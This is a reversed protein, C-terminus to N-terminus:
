DVKQSNYRIFINDNYPGTFTDFLTVLNTDGDVLRYTLLLNELRTTVTTVTTGLTVGTEVVTGVKCKQITQTYYGTTKLVYCGDSLMVLRPTLVDGGSVLGIRGSSTMTTTDISYVEMIFWSICLLRNNISDYIMDRCAGYYDSAWVSNISSIPTTATPTLTKNVFDIAVTVIVTHNTSASMGTCYLTNSTRDLAICGQSIGGVGISTSGSTFNSVSWVIDNIVKSVLIGDDYDAASLFIFLVGDKYVTTREPSRILIYGEVATSVKLELVPSSGGTLSYLHIASSPNHQYYVVVNSNETEYLDVWDTQTNASACFNSAVQIDSSIVPKGNVINFTALHVINAGKAIHSSYAVVYVDKSAVYLLDHLLWAHRQTADGIFASEDIANIEVQSTTVDSNLATYELDMTLTTGLSVPAIYATQLTTNIYEVTGTITITSTENGPVGEAVFTSGSVILKLTGSVGSDTISYGSLSYNSDVMVSKNTPTHIVAGLPPFSETGNQKLMVITTYGITM